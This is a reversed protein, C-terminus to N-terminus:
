PLASLYENLRSVLREQELASRGAAFRIDRGEVDQLGVETVSNGRQQIPVAVSARSEPALTYAEEWSWPGLRRRLRLRRGELELEEQSVARVASRALGYAAAWFLAYFALLGLALPGIAQMMGGIMFVAHVGTFGFMGLSFVGMFAAAGRSGPSVKLELRTPASQAGTAAEVERRAAVEALRERIRALDVEGAPDAPALLGLRRRYDRELADLEQQAERLTDLLPGEAPLAAPELAVLVREGEARLSPVRELRERCDAASMTDLDDLLPAFRALWGHAAERAQRRQLSARASDLEQQEEERDLRM